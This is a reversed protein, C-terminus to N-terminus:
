AEGRQKLPYASVLSPISEGERIIWVTRVMPNRDDPTNLTGEVAYRIGHEDAETSAVEHATAHQKLAEAMVEWAEIRFGFARFFLAKGKGKPSTPDLLYRTIKPQVVVALDANPLKM